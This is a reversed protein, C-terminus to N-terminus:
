RNGWRLRNGVLYSLILGFGLRIRVHVRVGSHKTESRVEKKRGGLPWNKRKSDASVRYRRPGGAWGPLLNSLVYCASQEDDVVLIHDSEVIM